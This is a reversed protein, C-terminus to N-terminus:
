RLPFLRVRHVPIKNRQTAAAEKNAVVIVAITEAQVVGCTEISMM